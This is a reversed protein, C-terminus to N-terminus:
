YNELNKELQSRESLFQVDYNRLGTGTRKKGKRLSPTYREWAHKFVEVVHACMRLSCMTKTKLIYM